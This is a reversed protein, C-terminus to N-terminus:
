KEYSYILKFMESIKDKAILFTIGKSRNKGFSDESRSVRLILTTKITRNKLLKIFKNFEYSQYCNIRYYRFSIKNDIIKKSAFVLALKKLKTEYKEQLTQFTIIGRKELFNQMNDYINLYICKEADDIKLEFYHNNFHIKENIKLNIIMNKKGSVVLDEKGYKQLIYNAEYLYPGDFSSSFLGIAYRSFRQTTKIEIDKYDPFYFSDAEKNLLKEFTLGASNYFNNVGEVYRMKNIEKFKNILEIFNDDM